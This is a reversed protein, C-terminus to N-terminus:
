DSTGNNEVCEQDAINTERKLSSRHRLGMTLDRFKHFVSGQLLQTYFDALIEGAPCYIVHINQTDLRNKM